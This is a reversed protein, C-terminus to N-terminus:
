NKSLFTKINKYIGEVLRQRAEISAWAIHPTFQVKHTNQLLNLPNEKEIPEKSIVDLGVRIDNDHREIIEALDKENIIGGRGLNLLIANNKLLNLEEAKLLDQTDANLPAHISIVNSTKLLTNLDVQQYDNCSNQGSTSYYLIKCGFSQAIKAVSKGITGLGIIGWTKSDLEFYPRELNTFIPSNQWAKSKVFDDYYHSSMILNLALMFTTQAVSQTSYGAVNKVEIGRQKAYELDINNMGTAAVCILKIQANDMIHADIVVKNTVVIDCERVRELTEEYSTSPYSMVSGLDNFIRLDIDDGITKQDLFVIKM